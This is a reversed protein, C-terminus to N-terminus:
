SHPMPRASNLSALLAVDDLAERLLRDRADDRALDHALARRADVLQQALLYALNDPALDIVRADAEHRDRVNLDRGVQAVGVHPDGDDPRQGLPLLCQASKPVRHREHAASQALQAKLAYRLQVDFLVIRGLAARAHQGDEVLELAAARTLQGLRLRQRSPMEATSGTGARGFGRLALRPGSLHRSFESVASSTAATGTSTTERMRAARLTRVTQWTLGSASANPEASPTASASSVSPLVAVGSHESTTGGIYPKMGCM